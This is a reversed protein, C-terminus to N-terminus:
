RAVRTEPVAPFHLFAELVSLRVEMIAFLVLKMVHIMIALPTLPIVYPLVSLCLSHSLPLFLSLSLSLSTM